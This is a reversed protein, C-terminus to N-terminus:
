YGQSEESGDIKGWFSRYMYVFYGVVLVTGFTWWVLGVALGHHSAASNYISLGYAPDGSSPLVNPYLGFAAGILMGAIYLCSSAFAAGDKGKARFFAMGALGALVLAPIAFGIRLSEYNGMMQPRVRLTAALGALTLVAVGWWLIAAL